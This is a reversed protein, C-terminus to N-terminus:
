VAEYRTRHTFVVVLLEEGSDVDYTFQNDGSALTLWTSGMTVKNILNTKVGDRLLTVSKEGSKTNVTVVDGLALTFNLGFYERTDNNYITPNTVTGTATLTVTIGTDGNGDNVINVIRENEYTSFEAGTSEIAFPFEFGALVKSIDSVIEDVSKFYPDPCVVSIQMTQNMTFLNNEITECWGEAYVDRHDNKYYLKCYRKIRFYRYLQLRNAGVDGNIRVTIVINREELKASQFKSGDAGAVNSRRIVANPPNLGEIDVIQYRSENQTLTLRDGLENEVTLRFM